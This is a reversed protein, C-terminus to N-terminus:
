PNRSRSETIVLFICSILLGDRAEVSAPVEEEGDAAAGEARRRPRDVCSIGAVRSLRLIRNGRGVVTAFRKRQRSGGIWLLRSRGPAYDIGLAETSICPKGGMAGLRDRITSALKDTSAVTAAKHASIRTHALM